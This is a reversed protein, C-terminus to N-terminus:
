SVVAGVDAHASPFTVEFRAGGIPATDVRVRAGISRATADVVSLGLGAGGRDRDRADDLRVFREFIRERDDPAVGDGDDARAARHQIHALRQFIRVHHLAAYQMM